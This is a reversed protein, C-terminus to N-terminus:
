RHMKYYILVMSSIIVGALFAIFLEKSTFGEKEPETIVQEPRETIIEAPTEPPPSVEPLSVNVPPEEEPEEEKLKLASTDLLKVEGEWTGLLLLQSDESIDVSQVDKVEISYLLHDYFDYSEVRGEIAVVVREASGALCADIAKLEKQFVIDGSTTLLIIKKTTRALVTNGDESIDVEYVLNELDISKQVEGKANLIFLTGNSLGAAIKSGDKSIDVSYIYDGLNVETFPKLFSIIGLETGSSYVIKEARGSIALSSIANEKRLSFVGESGNYVRLNGDIDGVGLYSGESSVAIAKVSKSFSTEFITAGGSSFFYVNSDLTRLAFSEGESGM